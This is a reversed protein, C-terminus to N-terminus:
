EREFVIDSIYRGDHPGDGEVIWISREGGETQSKTSGHAAVRLGKYARRQQNGFEFFDYAFQARTYDVFNHKSPASRFSRPQRLLVQEVYCEVINVRVGAERAMGTRRRQVNQWATYLQEIWKDGDENRGTIAKADRQYARIVAEVSLPVRPSVVEKGYSIEATRKVFNADIEFRGLEFRPPRGRIEIGLQAVADRLARGFTDGLARQAQDLEHHLAPLIPDLQQGPLKVKGASTQLAAYARGLKVVDVSEARLAAVADKLATDLGGLAKTERRLEPSLPEVIEDRLRQADVGQAFAAQAESIAGNEDQRQEAYDRLSRSAKSLASATGKLAAQLSNALKIRQGITDRLQELDNILTDDPM